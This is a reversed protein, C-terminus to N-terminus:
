THLVQRGLMKTEKIQDRITVMVLHAVTLTMPLEAMSRASM